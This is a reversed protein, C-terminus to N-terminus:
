KETLEVYIDFLQSIFNKVGSTYIHNKMNNKSRQYYTTLILLLYM